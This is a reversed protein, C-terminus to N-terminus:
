LVPCTRTASARRRSGGSGFTKLGSTRSSSATRFRRGLVSERLARPRRWHVLHPARARHVTFNLAPALVFFAYLAVPPHECMRVSILPTRFLHHGSLLWRRQGLLPIVVVLVSHKQFGVFVSLKMNGDDLTDRIQQTMSMVVHKTSDMERFGLQLDYICNYFELFAYIKNFM